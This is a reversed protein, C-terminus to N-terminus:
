NRMEDRVQVGDGRKASPFEHRELTVGAEALREAFNPTWSIDWPARGQFITVLSVFQLHINPRTDFAGFLRKAEDQKGSAILMLAFFLNRRNSDSLSEVIERADDDRGAVAYVFALMSSHYEPPGWDPDEALRVAEDMNNTAVHTLLMHFELFMSKGVTALGQELYDIAQATDGAVNSARWAENFPFPSLPNREIRLEALTMATDTM